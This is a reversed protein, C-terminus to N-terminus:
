RQVLDPLPREYRAWQEASVPTIASSNLKAVAPPGVAWLKNDLVLGISNDPGLV